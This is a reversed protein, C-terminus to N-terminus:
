PFTLITSPAANAAHTTKALPHSLRRPRRVDTVLRRWPASCATRHKTRRFSREIRLEQLTVDQPTGLVRACNDRAGQRRLSSFERAFNWFTLAEIQKTM